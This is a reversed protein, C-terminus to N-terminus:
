AVPEDDSSLEQLREPTRPETSTQVNAPGATISRDRPENFDLTAQVLQQSVAVIDTLTICTKQKSGPKSAIRAENAQGILNVAALRNPVQTALTALAGTINRSWTTPRLEPRFLDQLPTKWRATIIRMSAMKHRDLSALRDIAPKISTNYTFASRLQHEDQFFGRWCETSLLKDWAANIVECVQEDHEVGTNLIAKLIDYAQEKSHGFLMTNIAEDVPTNASSLILSQIQAVSSSM